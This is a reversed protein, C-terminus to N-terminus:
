ATPRATIPVTRVSPGSSWQVLMLTADDVPPGNQHEIVAHSLRRLTESVPVDTGTDREVLEVLRDVGFQTGTADRAETVGDTHLLLRDGPQLTEEGHAVEGDGGVGLPLLRGGDLSRVLRGDRLLLPAPHGANYYRLVGTERDLEMLVATAFRADDFQQQLAAGAARAQQLLDGGARRTARVAALVVACALGARLGRGAADLILFQPRRGDLAYDFGDGGVEYCPELVATVVLDDISSTLPQLLQNLLEAGATMPRSRRVVALHDGRNTAAAVLHGVLGALLELGRQLGPADPDLGDPLVFDVVGLRDTGDVMPSWWRNPASREPVSEVLVFARGAPTGDVPLTEARRGPQPVPRLYRQEHDVLYLTTRLGVRAAAEAVGPAVQEPQWLHSGDLLERVPGFWQEDVKTAM